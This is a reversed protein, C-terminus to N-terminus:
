RKAHYCVLVFSSFTALMLIILISNQREEGEVATSLCRLSIGYLRTSPMYAVNVSKDFRFHPAQADTASTYVNAM